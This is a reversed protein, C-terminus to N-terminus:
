TVAAHVLHLRQRTLRSRALRQKGTWGDGATDSLHLTLGDCLRDCTSVEGIGGALVVRPTSDTLEWSVDSAADSGGGGVSITYGYNEANLEEVPPLCIESTQEFGDALTLGTAIQEGTCSSVTATAGAWGNGAESMLILLWRNPSAHDCWNLQNGHEQIRRRASVDTAGASALHASFCCCIALWRHMM